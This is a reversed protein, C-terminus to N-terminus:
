KPPLNTQLPLLEGTPRAGQYRGPGLGRLPDEAPQRSWWRLGLGLLLLLALGGLAPGALRWNIRSLQYTVADLPTRPRGTLSGEGAGERGALEEDLRAVFGAADLHLLHCYTRVTGRVYVPAPFVSFEGRELADLHDARLKTHEAVQHLSLGQAERAQRLQRGVESM